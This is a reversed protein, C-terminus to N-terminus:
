ESSLAEGNIYKEITNAYLAIGYPGFRITKKEIWREPGPLQVECTRGKEAESTTKPLNKIAVWRIQEIEQDSVPKFPIDESVNPM